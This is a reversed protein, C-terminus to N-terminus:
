LMGLSTKARPPPFDRDLLALDDPTLAIDQAAINERVHEPKTAKPIAVVGPQALTWALAIQYISVGHRKAVADIGPKRTLRGQELPSYAMVPM